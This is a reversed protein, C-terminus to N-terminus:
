GGSKELADALELVRRAAAVVPYDVMRGDVTGSAEGRAEAEAFAEIVRRAELVEEPTPSFVQNVVPVQKPHICCKGQFGLQRALRASRALGELDHIDAWVTDIPQERGAVRSGMVVRSRAMLVETEDKSWAVGIDRTFDGSGFNVRRVRPVAQAVTVVEWVGRATELLPMLDISNRAMGHLAELRMLLTDVELLETPSEAKPLLIGALRPCAVAQIDDLGFDQSFSTKQGVTNVRVYARVGEPYSELAARVAARTAEKEAIPVADELDLIVADAGCSVVKEVMRPRNGPAFLLSRLVSM